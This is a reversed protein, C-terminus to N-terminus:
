QIEDGLRPEQGLVLRHINGRHRVLVLITIALLFTLWSLNPPTLAERRHLALFTIPLTCAAIMSSLSIIRFCLLSLAFATGAIALTPWSAALLVGSATAVGKGGRFRMQIPFCHGLFASAGMLMPLPLWTAIPAEWAPLVALGLWTPLWGKMLDLLYVVIGFRTGLYRGANTAGPNGSGVTRLDVGSKLKVVIMAFSISGLLYSALILLLALPTGM